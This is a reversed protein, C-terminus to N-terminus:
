RRERVVKGDRADIQTERLEGRRNLTKVRYNKQNRKVGLVRGPHERQAIDAAQQKSIGSRDSQRDQQRDTKQYPAASLPMSLLMVLTLLLPFIFTKMIDIFGSNQQLHYNFFTTLIGTKIISCLHRNVIDLFAYRNVPLKHNTM